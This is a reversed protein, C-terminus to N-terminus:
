AWHGTGCLPPLVKPEFSRLDSTNGERDANSHSRPQCGCQACSTSGSRAACQVQFFWDLGLGPAPSSFVFACMAVYLLPLLSWERGPCHGSRGLVTYRSLASALAAPLRPLPCPINHFTSNLRRARGLSNM